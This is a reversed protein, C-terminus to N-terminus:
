SAREPKLSEATLPVCLVGNDTAVYLTAGYALVAQVSPSPLPLDLRVARLGAPDLRWLGAELTGALIWPGVACLANPNVNLRRGAGRFERWTGDAALLQFGGGYTGVVVGQACPLLATIWNVRLPSNDAQYVTAVRDGAMVALGGLTGVYLRGERPAACYVKNSPLGHLAYFLEEAGGRLASLGQGHCVWTVAGAPIVQNVYASRLPSEPRGVPRSGAAELTWLGQATGAWLRAGDWALHNVTNLAPTEIVDRRGAPDRREVGGDFYGLWVAGAGAALAMVSPGDLDGAPVAVARVGGPAPTWRFAGRDTLLDIGAPGAVADRVLGPAGIATFRRRGASWDAWPAAYVQDEVCACLVQGARHGAFAVPRGPFLMEQFDGAASLVALGADTGALLMGDPLVALGTVSRLPPLAGGPRMLRGGDLRYLGHRFTGIVPGRRSLAVAALGDAPLGPLVVARFRGPELELLQGRRTACLLRGARGPALATVWDAAFAPLAFRELTRGDWRALGGGGLGLYLRGGLEAM